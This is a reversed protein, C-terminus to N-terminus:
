VCRIQSVKAKLKCSGFQNYVECWQGDTIGLRQATRPHVEVLPDPNLRDRICM